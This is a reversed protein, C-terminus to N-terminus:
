IVRKQSQELQIIVCAYMYGICIYKVKKNVREKERM